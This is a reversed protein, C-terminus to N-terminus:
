ATGVLFKNLMMLSPPYKINGSKAQENVSSTNANSRAMLRRRPRTMGPGNTLRKM